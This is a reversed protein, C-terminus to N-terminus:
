FDEGEYVERVQYLRRSSSALEVGSACVRQVILNQTKVELAKKEYVTRKSATEPHSPITTTNFRWLFSVKERQHAGQFPERDKKALLGNTATGKEVVYAVQVEGKTCADKPRKGFNSSKEKKASSHKGLFFIPDPLFEKGWAELGGV